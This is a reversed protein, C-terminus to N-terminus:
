LIVNARFEDRWQKWVDHDGKLGMLGEKVKSMGFGGDGARLPLWATSPV